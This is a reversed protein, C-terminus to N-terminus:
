KDTFQLKNASKTTSDRTLTQCHIQPSDLVTVLKDNSQLKTSDENQCNIKTLYHSHLVTVIM